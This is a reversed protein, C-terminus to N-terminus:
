RVLVTQDKTESKETDYREKFKIIRDHKPM